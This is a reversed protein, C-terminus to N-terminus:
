LLPISHFMNDPYGGCNQCNHDPGVQYYDAIFIKKHCLMPVGGCEMCHGVSVGQYHAGIPARKLSVGCRPCDKIFSFSTPSVM